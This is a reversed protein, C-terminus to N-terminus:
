TLPLQQGAAAARAFADALSGPGGAVGNGGFVQAMLLPNIGAAPPAPSPPLATAPPPPPTPQPAPQGNAVVNSLKPASSAWPKEGYKAYLAKAVQNQVEFPASMATPYQSPDVGAFGMGERWTPDIIQYYGSATHDPIKTHINQNGSERQAIAALADDTASM